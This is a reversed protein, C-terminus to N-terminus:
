EVKKLCRFVNKPSKSYYVISGDRFNISYVDYNNRKSSSWYDIQQFRRGGNAMIIVQNDYIRRLEEKSPLYWDEGYYSCIKCAEDWTAAKNDKPSIVGNVYEGSEECCKPCAIEGRFNKSSFMKDAIINLATSLDAEGQTTEVHDTHIMNGSSVETIKCNIRYNSSGLLSINAYCAYDAEKVQGMDQSGGEINDERFIHEKNVVGLQSREVVKFIKAKTIGEELASIVSKRVNEPIDSNSKEDDYVAITKKEQASLNVSCFLFAWFLFTIKRM